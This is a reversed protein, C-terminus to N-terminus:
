NVACEYVRWADNEFYAICRDTGNDASGYRGSKSADIVPHNNSYYFCVGATVPKAYIYLPQGQLNYPNAIEEDQECKYFSGNIELASGQLIEPTGNMEIQIFGGGQFTTRYLFRQWDDTKPPFNVPEQVMVAMIQGGAM